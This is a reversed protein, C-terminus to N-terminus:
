PTGSPTAAGVLLEQFYESNEDLYDVFLTLTPSLDKDRHYVLNITRPISLDSFPVARLTGAACEARIQSRCLFSLGLGKEVLKKILTINSVEYETRLPVQRMEFQKQIIQRSLTIKPLLIVPEDALEEVSVESREWLRHGPGCVAVISDRALVKELLGPDRPEEQNSGTIGADLKNELIMKRIRTAYRLTIDFSIDPYRGKFGAILEPLVYVGSFGTAGFRIRGATTELVGSVANFSSKSAKLIREAFPLLAEGAPTLRVKKGIREFLRCRYENELEKIQLSIAPQTFFLVEAARTFNGLRAVTHFTKLKILDM